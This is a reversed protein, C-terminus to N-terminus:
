ARSAIKFLDNSIIKRDAKLRKSPSTRKPVPKPTEPVFFLPVGEPEEGM